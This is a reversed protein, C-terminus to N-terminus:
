ASRAGGLRQPVGVTAVARGEQQRHHQLAAAGFCWPVGVVAREGRRQWGLLVRVIGQCAAAAV